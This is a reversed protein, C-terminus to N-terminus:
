REGNNERVANIAITRNATERVCSVITNALIERTSEQRGDFLFGAAYRVSAELRGSFDVEALAANFDTGLCEKHHRRYFECALVGAANGYEDVLFPVSGLLGDRIQAPELGSSDDFARRFQAGAAECVKDLANLYDNLPYKTM